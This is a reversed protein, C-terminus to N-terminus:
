PVRMSALATEVGAWARMAAPIQEEWPPLPMGNAGFERVVVFHTLWGAPKGAALTQVAAVDIPVAPAAPAPAVAPSAPPPTASGTLDARAQRLERLETELERERGDITALLSQRQALADRISQALDTM